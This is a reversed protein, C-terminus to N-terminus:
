RIGGVQPVDSILDPKSIIDFKVHSEPITANEFIAYLRAHLSRLPKRMVTKFVRKSKSKFVFVILKDAFKSKVVM